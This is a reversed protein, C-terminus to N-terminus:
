MSSWKDREKKGAMRLFVAPVGEERRNKNRICLTEEAGMLTM